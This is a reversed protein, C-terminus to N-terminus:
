VYLISILSECWKSDEKVQMKRANEIREFM